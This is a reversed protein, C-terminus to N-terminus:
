WIYAIIEGGVNEKRAETGTMLGKSTSIIVTGYGSLIAPIEDSKVYVRLGPKSVRKIGVIASQNKKYKLTIVLSKKVGEGEVSYSSIYGEREILKVIAEKKVSYPVSLSRHKRTNANKVRVVLDSIPDTIFM